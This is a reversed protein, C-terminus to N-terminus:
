RDLTLERLMEIDGAGELNQLMELNDIVEQDEPSVAPRVGGDASPLAGLGAGVGVGGFSGNM